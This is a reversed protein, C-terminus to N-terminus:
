IFRALHMQLPQRRAALQHHLPRSFVGTHDIDPVAQYCRELNFRVIMRAVNLRKLARSGPNASNKAVNEGHTRPRHRHEIRKTEPRDRCTLANGFFLGRLVPANEVTHNAPDRIIAITEAHRRNPALNAELRAIRLIRQHVGQSQADGFFFIQKEGFRFASPIRHNIDARFRTAVAYVASRQQSGGLEGFFRLLLPGVNLNAIREHFLKQEFSAQFRHLGARHHRNLVHARRSQSTRRRLHGRASAGANLDIQRFYRLAFRPHRRVFDHKALRM